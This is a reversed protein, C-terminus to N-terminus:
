PGQVDAHSVLAHHRSRTTEFARCPRVRPAPLDGMLQQSAHLKLKYCTLCQHIITKVLMKVRPIWYTNRISAILFQSGAHHLRKHESSVLLRTFHHTYPLIVQHMTQFPIEARQLRGGVLLIGEQDIFPYLSKFNSTKAVEQQESLERLEKSYTIGQVLKICCTLVEQLEHTTLPTTLHHAPQQKCNHIFGKCHATVRLIRNFNSFRSIPYDTM